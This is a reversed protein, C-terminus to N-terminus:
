IQFNGAFERSIGQEFAFIASNPCLDPIKLRLYFYERSIKGAAPFIKAQASVSERRHAGGM